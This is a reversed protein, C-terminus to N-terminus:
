DRRMSTSPRRGRRRAGRVARAGSRRPLAARRGRRARAARARARRRVGRGRGLQAPGHVFRDRARRKTSPTRSSAARHAGVHVRRRARARPAAARRGARGRQAVPAARRRVRRRRRAPLAAGRRRRARPDVHADSAVVPTGCAMAELVQFGFGEYLSTDVFADARRYLEVLEDDTVRGVVRRATPRARALRRRRRAARGGRARSRLATATDDRPDNSGIHSCTSGDRTSGPSFRQRRPGPLAAARGRRRPGRRRDGALRHLRARRSRPEAALARADRADSGRQWLRAGVRRNQEIRHTPPEFM